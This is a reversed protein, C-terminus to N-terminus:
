YITEVLVEPNEHLFYAEIEESTLAALETHFASDQRQFQKDENSLIATANVKEIQVHSREDENAVENESNIEVKGVARNVIAEKQEIENKNEALQETTNSEKFQTSILYSGGGLILVLLFILGFKNRSFRKRKPANSHTADEVELVNRWHLKVHDFYHDPVKLDENQQPKMNM